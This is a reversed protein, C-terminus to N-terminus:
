RKGFVCVRNIAAPRPTERSCIRCVHFTFHIRRMLEVPFMGTPSTVENVPAVGFVVVSKCRTGTRHSVRILKCERLVRRTFAVRARCRIVRAGVYARKGTPDCAARVYIHLTVSADDFSAPPVCKARANAPRLYPARM